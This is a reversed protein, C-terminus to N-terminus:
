RYKKERALAPGIRVESPKVSNGADLIGAVEEEEAIM